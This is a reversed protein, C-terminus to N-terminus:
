KMIAGFLKLFKTKKKKKRPKPEKEVKVPVDVHVSEKTPRTITQGTSEEFSEKRALAMTITTPESGSFEDVRTSAAHWASSSEDSRARKLEVRAHGQDPDSSSTTEDQRVGTGCESMTETLEMEFMGIIAAGSGADPSTEPKPNM